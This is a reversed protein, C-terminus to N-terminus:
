KKFSERNNLYKKYEYLFMVINCSVVLHKYNSYYVVSVIGHPAFPLSLGMAMAYLCAM